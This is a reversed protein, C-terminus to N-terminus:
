IHCAVHLLEVKEDHSIRCKFYVLWQLIELAEGMRREEEEGWAGERIMLGRGGGNRAREYRLIIVIDGDALPEGRRCGWDIQPRTEGYTSGGPAATRWDIVELSLRPLSLSLPGSIFAPWNLCGEAVSATLAVPPRDPLYEHRWREGGVRHHHLSPTVAPASQKGDLTQAPRRPRDENGMLTPNIFTQASVWDLGYDDAWRSGVLLLADVLLPQAECEFLTM